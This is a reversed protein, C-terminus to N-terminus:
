FLNQKKIEGRDSFYEYLFDQQHKTLTKTYTVFCKDNMAPDHLLVWGLNSLKDCYTQKKDDFVINFKEAIEYAMYEHDGWAAEYFDGMPSLWGYIYKKTKHPIIINEQKNELIYDDDPFHIPEDSEIMLTDYVPEGKYAGHYGGVRNIYIAGSEQLKNMQNTAVDMEFGKIGQIINYGKMRSYQEIAATLPLIHKGSIYNEVVVGYRTPNVKKMIILWNM